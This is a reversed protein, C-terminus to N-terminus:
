PRMGIYFRHYRHGLSTLIEYGNTRAQEAVDDPTHHPGILEVPTGPPTMSEPLDTVDITILDMSVRGIVPVRYGEIFGLGRNGLARLYGDFKDKRETDSRRHPM